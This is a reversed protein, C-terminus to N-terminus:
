RRPRRPRSLTPTGAFFAITAVGALVMGGTAPEPIAAATVAVAYADRWVTYDALDILGDANGDAGTGVAVSTGFARSWTAYDASNVTGDANYDGTVPLIEYDIALTPFALGSAGERTRWDPYAPGGFGEQAAAHMSSLMFGVVGEALSRQVYAVVGAQSLDIEFTFTNIGTIAEGPAANTTGISWPVATFPDTEGDPATASYGGSYSNSVDAYGGLGDGVIPYVGYHGGPYPNSAEDYRNGHTVVGLDFGAYSDQLFGVGFLEMPQASSVGGGLAEALLDAASKPQHHYVLPSSSPGAKNAWVTLTVSEIAYRVPALGPTVQDITEFGYLGMGLRSSQGTGSRFFRETNPDVFVGGFTPARSRTGANGTSSSYIWADVEPGENWFATAAKLESVTATAVTLLLGRAFRRLSRKNM